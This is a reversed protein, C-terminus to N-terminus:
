TAVNGTVGEIREGGRVQGNINRIEFVKFQVVWVWPNQAWSNDGYLDAWLFQFRNLECTCGPIETPCTGMGEALCDEKTMDQLRELRVDTIELFLRCRARPMHISPRIRRHGQPIEPIGDALYGWEHSSWLKYEDDEPHSQSWSGREWTTERVWFRDGSKGFACDIFGQKAASLLALTKLSEVDNAERPYNDCYWNEGGVGNQDWTHVHKEPWITAWGSTLAGPGDPPSPSWQHKFIRRTQTKEGNLIARVMGGCFLIPRERM